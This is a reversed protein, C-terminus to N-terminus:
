KRNTSVFTHLQQLQYFTQYYLSDMLLDHWKIKSVAMGLNTLHIALRGDVFRNHNLYDATRKNYAWNNNNDDDDIMLMM